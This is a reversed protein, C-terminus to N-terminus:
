KNFFNKSLTQFIRLDFYPIIALFHEFIEAQIDEYNSWKTDSSFFYLEIPLGTETPQLHRILFTMDKHRIKPHNHLYKKIYIRFLGMNTMEHIVSKKQELEEKLYQHIDTNHVLKDLLIDDCFKISDIDIQLSRKIRRGGAEYMGKWNKFSEAVLTYAPLTTITKDFNQVKVTTLSIDIVDGNADHKPMEIWDGVKVMDNASLQFSAIFGLLPDKFVIAIVATLAGLSGLLITPSKNLLLSLIYIFGILYVLIKLAQVFGKIPKESSFEYTNYIKHFVEVLTTILFVSVIAIYIEPLLEAYFILKKFNAFVLPLLLYLLIGALLHSILTFIRQKLLLRMWPAPRPFIKQFFRLLYKKSLLFVFFIFVIIGVIISAQIIITKLLPWFNESHFWTKIQEIM